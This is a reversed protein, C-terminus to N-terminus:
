ALAEAFKAAFIPARGPRQRPDVALARAFFAELRESADPLQARIPMLRGALVASQYDVATASPFPLVGTLMEYTMVALAWLDWAAEVASGRLQEPGMYHLTGVLRGTGTVVATQADSTLFKAIGFDLVKAREGGGNRVLFVNEPKLDRHVLQEDHAADVAASVDRVIALARDAGLRREDRLIERLTAGHLLEM